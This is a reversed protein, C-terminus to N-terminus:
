EDEGNKENEKQEKELIKDWKEQLATELGQVADVKLKQIEKKFAPFKKYFARRQQRNM